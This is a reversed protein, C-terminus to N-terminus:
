TLGHLRKRWRRQTVSFAGNHPDALAYAIAACIESRTLDALENEMMKQVNYGRRVAVAIVAPVTYGTGPIPLRGSSDSAIAGFARFFARLSAPFTCSPRKTKIFPLKGLLRRWM